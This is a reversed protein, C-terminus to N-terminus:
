GYIVEGFCAVQVIWDAVDADVDQTTEPEGNTRDNERVIAVNREALHLTTAADPARFKALASAISEVTIDYRPPNDERGEDCEYDWVTVSADAREPTSGEPFRQPHSYGLSPSQWRYDSVQSWYNIGGEVATTIIDALFEQREASRKRTRTPM